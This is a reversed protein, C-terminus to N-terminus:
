WKGDLHEQKIKYLQKYRGTLCKDKQKQCRVAHLTNQKMSSLVKHKYEDKNGHM